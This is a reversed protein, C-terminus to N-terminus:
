FQLGQRAQHAQGNFPIFYRVSHEQTCEDDIAEGVDFLDVVTRDGVAVLLAGPLLELVEVLNQRRRGNKARHCALASVLFLALLVALGGDFILAHDSLFISLGRLIKDSAQGLVADTTVLPEFFQVVRPLGAELEHDIM